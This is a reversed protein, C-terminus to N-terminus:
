RAGPSHAQPGDGVAEASVAVALVRAPHDAVGERIEHVTPLKSSVISATRCRSASTLSWRTRAAARDSRPSRLPLVTTASSTRPLRHATSQAPSLRTYRSRPPRSSCNVCRDCTKRAALISRPQDIGVGDGPRDARVRTSREVQHAVVNADPISEQQARIPQGPRNRLRLDPVPHRM